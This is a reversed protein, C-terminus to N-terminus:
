EDRKEERLWDPLAPPAGPPFGKIIDQVIQCESWTWDALNYVVDCSGWRYCIKAM